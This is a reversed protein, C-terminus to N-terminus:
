LCGIPIMVFMSTNSSANAGVPTEESAESARDATVDAWYVRVGHPDDALLFVEAM